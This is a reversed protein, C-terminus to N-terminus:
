PRDFGKGKCTLAPHVRTAGGDESLTLAAASITAAYELSNIAVGGDILRYASTGINGRPAYENPEEVLTIGGDPHFTYVVRSDKGFSDWSGLLDRELHGTPVVTRPTCDLAAGCSTLLALVGICSALKM